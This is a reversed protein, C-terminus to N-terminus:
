TTYKYFYTYTFFTICFCLGMKLVNKADILQIGQSDANQTFDAQLHFYVYVSLCFFFFVCYFDTAQCWFIFHTSKSSGFSKFFIEIQNAQQHAYDKRLYSKYYQGNDPAVHQFSQFAIILM